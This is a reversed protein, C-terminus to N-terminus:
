KNQTPKRKSIFWRQYHLRRLNIRQGLPHANLEFADLHERLPTRKQEAFREQEPDILGLRRLRAEEEKKAAAQETLGRDTFGKETRRKGEHDLWQFWYASGKKKDRKFISAM